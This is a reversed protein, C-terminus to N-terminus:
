RTEGIGFIAALKRGAYWMVAFPLVYMGFRVGMTLWATPTTLPHWRVVATDGVYAPRVNVWPAPEYRASYAGPETLEVTAEGNADTQVRQSALEIHGSQVRSVGPSSGTDTLEIPEGTEADELEVLVTAATETREIISASLETAYMERSEAFLSRLDADTDRVIGHVTVESPDIDDAQVAIGYTEDYSDSVVEVAVNEPLSDTPTEHSVGWTQVITPDAGEPKAKPAFASPYAYVGVPLAYQDRTTTGSATAEVVSQWGPNRATFFRWIGRIEMSGDADLTYGRWPQSQTISLGSADDPYTISTAVADFDYVEVTLTDQVEISTRRTTTTATRNSDPPQVTEELTAEIRAEVTFTREGGDLEYEFAPRHTGDTSDIERDDVSLRVSEIEHSRLEWTWTRNNRTSDAPVEIRYDIAGRLDGEPAVYLREDGSEVYLRTSPTVSFMTVHADRIYANSKTEADVPHISVDSDGTEFTEHADNNWRHATTPPETFTLDTEAALEHLPTDVGVDPDWQEPPTNSWLTAEESENLGSDTTGPQPPQTGTETATVSPAGVLVLLSLCGVVLVTTGRM